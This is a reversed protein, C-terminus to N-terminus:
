SVWAADQSATARPPAPKTAKPAAPATVGPATAATASATALAAPPVAGGRGPDAGPNTREGNRARRRCVLEVDLLIAALEYRAATPLWPVLHQWHRRLAAEPLLPSRRLLARLWEPDDPQAQDGTV